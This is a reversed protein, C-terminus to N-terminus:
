DNELSVNVANTFDEVLEFYWPLTVNNGIQISTKNKM